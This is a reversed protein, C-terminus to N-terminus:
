SVVLIFRKVAFMKIEGTLLCILEKIPFVSVYLLSMTLFM